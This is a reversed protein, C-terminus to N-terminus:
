LGRMKYRIQLNCVIAYEINNGLMVAVRDGKKVGLALLGQAFAKSKKDLAGYTLRASQHRSIVSYSEDLLTRHAKM